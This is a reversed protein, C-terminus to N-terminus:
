VIKITESLLDQLNREKQETIIKIDINAASAGNTYNTGTCITAIEIRLENALIVEPVNTMGVIDAGANKLFKIEAQTELRPGYTNAYIGANRIKIKLKKAADAIADRLRQSYPNNMLVHEPKNRFQNFFTVPRFSFDIFDHPLIFQGLKIEPNIIGVAATCIIQKAGLDRLAQINAQHNIRHPPISHKEGHRLILAIKKENIKGIAIKSSPKGYVTKVTQWKKHLLINELNYGGIIGIM